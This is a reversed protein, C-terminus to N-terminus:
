AEENQKQKKSAYMNKLSHSISEKIQELDIDKTCFEVIEDDANEFSDCLVQYLEKPPINIKLKLNVEVVNPKQKSLLSHIPSSKDPVPKTDNSISVKYLDRNVHNM